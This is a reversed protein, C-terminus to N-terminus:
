PAAIGIAAEFGEAALMAGDEEAAGLRAFLRQLEQADGGAVAAGEQEDVAVAADALRREDLRALKAVAM